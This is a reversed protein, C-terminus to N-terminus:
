NRLGEITESMPILDYTYLLDSLAGARAFESVVDVVVAFLFPQLVSGQHMEVRVVIEESLESVVTIKTKGDYLSMVSRVLVELIGYIYIYLKKGKAHYEIQMARLIFVANITGGESMFGFQMEFQGLLRVAKYCSCNMVDVNGM